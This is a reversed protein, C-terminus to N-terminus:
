SATPHPCRSCAGWADMCARLATVNAGTGNFTFFVDVDGLLERFRGVARETWPDDGYATAHGVNAASMAALVEPHAGAWNDSAFARKSGAV